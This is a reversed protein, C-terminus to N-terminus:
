IGLWSYVWSMFCYNTSNFNKSHLNVALELLLDSVVPSEENTIYSYVWQVIGEFIAVIESLSGEVAVLTDSDEEGDGENIAVKDM